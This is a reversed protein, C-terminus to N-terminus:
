SFPMFGARLPRNPAHFLARLGLVDDQAARQGQAVVEDAAKPLWSRSRYIRLYRYISTYMM